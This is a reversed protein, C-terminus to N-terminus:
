TKPLRTELLHKIEAFQSDHSQLRKDINEFKEDLWRLLQTFEFKTVMTQEIRTVRHKLSELRQDVANAREELKFIGEAVTELLIEQKSQDNKIKTVDSELQQLRSPIQISLIPGAEPM